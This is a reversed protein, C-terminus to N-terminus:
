PQLSHINTENKNQEPIEILLNLLNVYESFFFSHIYRDFNLYQSFLKSFNLSFHTVLLPTRNKHKFNIYNLLQMIKFFTICTNYLVFCIFYNKPSELHVFLSKLQLIIITYDFNGIRPAHHKFYFFLMAQTILM